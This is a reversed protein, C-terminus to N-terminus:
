YFVTDPSSGFSDFILTQARVWSSILSPPVIPPPPSCSPPIPRLSILAPPHTVCLEVHGSTTGSCAKGGKHPLRDIFLNLFFPPPLPLNTWLHGEGAKWLGCAGFGVKPLGTSGLTGICVWLLSNDSGIGHLTSSPLFPLSHTDWLTDPSFTPLYPSASLLRFEGKDSRLRHVAFWRM